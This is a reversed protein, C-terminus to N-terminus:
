FQYKRKGFQYNALRELVFEYCNNFMCSCLRLCLSAGVCASVEAAYYWAQFYHDVSVWAHTLRTEEEYQLELIFSGMSLQRLINHSCYLLLPPLM